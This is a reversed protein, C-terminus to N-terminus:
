GGTVGAKYYKLCHQESKKVAVYCHLHCVLKCQKTRASGSHVKIVNCTGAIEEHSCAVEIILGKVESIRHIYRTCSCM